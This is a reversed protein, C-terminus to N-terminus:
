ADTLVWQDRAMASKWSVYTEVPNRTLVIKACRPDALAADRVRPDHDWFLRFGALGNAEGRVREILAFPDKERAQM